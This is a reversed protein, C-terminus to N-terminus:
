GAGAGAGAHGGVAPGGASPELPQVPQHHSVRDPIEVIEAGKRLLDHFLGEPLLASSRIGLLAKMAGVCYFFSPVATRDKRSRMRLIAASVHVWAAFFPGAKEEPIVRIDTGKRSVDYFVWAGISAYYSAACVHRFGPKTLCDWWAARPGDGFFILWERDIDTDETLPNM